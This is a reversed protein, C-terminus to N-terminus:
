TRMCPSVTVTEGCETEALALGMTRPCCHKEDLTGRSNTANICVCKSMKFYQPFNWIAGSFCFELIKQCQLLM